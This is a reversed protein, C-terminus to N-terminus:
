FTVAACVPPIECGGAGSVQEERRHVALTLSATTILGQGHGFPM